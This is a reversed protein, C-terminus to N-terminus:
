QLCEYNMSGRRGNFSMGGHTYSNHGGCRAAATAHLCNFVLGQNTGRCVARRHGPAVIPQPIEFPEGKLLEIGFILEEFFVTTPVKEDIDYTSIEGEFFTEEQYSGPEVLGGQNAATRVYSEKSEDNNLLVRYWKGGTTFTHVKGESTAQSGLYELSPYAVQGSRIQVTEGEKSVKYVLLSKLVEDATQPLVEIGERAQAHATQQEVNTRIPEDQQTCAPSLAAVAACALLTKITVKM